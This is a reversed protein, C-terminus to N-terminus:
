IFAVGLPELDFSAFIPEQLRVGKPPHSITSTTITPVELSPGVDSTAVVPDQLGRLIISADVLQAPNEPTKPIPDQLNVLASVTAL